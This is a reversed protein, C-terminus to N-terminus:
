EDNQRRNLRKIQIKAAMLEVELLAIEDSMALEGHEYLMAVAVDFLSM